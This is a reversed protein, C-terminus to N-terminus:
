RLLKMNGQVNIAKMDTRAKQKGYLDPSLTFKSMVLRSDSVIKERIIESIIGAVGSPVGSKLWNIIAMKISILMATVTM